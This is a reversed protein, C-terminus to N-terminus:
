SYLLPSFIIELLIIHIETYLHKPTVVKSVIFYDSEQVM